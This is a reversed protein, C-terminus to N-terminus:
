WLRSSSSPMRPRMRQLLGRVGHREKGDDDGNEVLAVVHQRQNRLDSRCQAALDIKFDDVDIVGTAIVGHRDQFCGLRGVGAFEAKNFAATALRKLEDNTPITKGAAANGIKNAVVRLAGGAAGGAFAGWKASDVRDRVDGDGSGFGYAAGTAAGQRVAKPISTALKGPMTVAGAIQGVFREAGGESDRQRQAEINGAYDGASGGIGTLAGAGAAIEDAFGFTMMDAAGRVADDVRRLLGRNEPLRDQKPSAAPTPDALPAAEWWNSKPQEVLPASDWWNAM